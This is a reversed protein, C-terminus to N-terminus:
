NYSILFYNINNGNVEKKKSKKTKKEQTALYTM